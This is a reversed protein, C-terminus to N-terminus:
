DLVRFNAKVLAFLDIDDGEAAWSFAVRGRAGVLLVPRGGLTVENTMLDGLNARRKEPHGTPTSVADRILRDSFIELLEEGRALSPMDILGLRLFKGQNAWIVRESVGVDSSAPPQIRKWGSPATFACGWRYDLYTGGREEREPGAGGLRFARIAAIAQAHHAELVENSGSVSVVFATSGRVAMGTLHRELGAKSGGIAPPGHQALEDLGRVAVDGFSLTQARTTAGSKAALEALHQAYAQDNMGEPVRNALALITLGLEISQASFLANRLGQSRAIEPPDFAWTAVPRTWAVNFGFHRYTGGRVADAKGVMAEPDRRRELEAALALKAEMTMFRLGELAAKAQQLAADRQAPEYSVVIRVSRGLKELFAVQVEGGVSRASADAGPPAVAYGRFAVQAGAISLSWSRDPTLTTASNAAMAQEHEAKLRALTASGSPAPESELEIRMTSEEDILAAEADLGQQTCQNGVLLKLQPPARFEIGSAAGQYLRDHVRFSAGASDRVEFTRRQASRKRESLEVADFFASVLPARFLAAPGTVLIQVLQDARYFSRIAWRAEIAAVKGLANLDLATYGRYQVSVLPEIRLDARNVHALLQRAAAELDPAGSAPQAYVLGTMKSESHLAGVRAWGGHADVEAATLLSWGPVPLKLGVGQEENRTSPAELKAEHKAAPTADFLWSCAGVG